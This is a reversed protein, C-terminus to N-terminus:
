SASFLVVRGSTPSSDDKVSATVKQTAGIRRSGVLFQRCGIDDRNVRRFATFHDHCGRGGQLGDTDIGEVALEISGPGVYVHINDAEGKRGAYIGYLCHRLIRIFRVLNDNSLNEM